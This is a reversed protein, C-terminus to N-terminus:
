HIVGLVGQMVEAYCGQVHIVGLVGQMVEAYCGQVISSGWVGQMVEAYCGQVISSGWYARCGEAYCGQRISSVRQSSSTMEHNGCHPPTQSYWHCRHPGLFISISKKAIAGLCVVILCCCIHRVVSM